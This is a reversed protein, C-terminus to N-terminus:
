IVEHGHDDGSVIEITGDDFRVWAHKHTKGDEGRAGTTFGVRGGTSPDILHAHGSNLTSVLLSDKRATPGALNFTRHSYHGGTNTARDFPVWTGSKVVTGLDIDHAVGNHVYPQHVDVSHPVTITEKPWTAKEAAERKREVERHADAAKGQELADGLSTIRTGTILIDAGHKAVHPPEVYPKHEGSDWFAPRNGSRVLESISPEATASHGSSHASAAPTAPAPAAPTAAPVNVAPMVPQEKTACGKTHQIYGERHTSVGSRYCEKCTFHFIGPNRVNETAEISAPQAAQVTALTPGKAEHAPEGGEGFRGREDRPHKDEEFDGADYRKM